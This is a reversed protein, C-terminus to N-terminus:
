SMQGLAPPTGIAASAVGADRRGMFLRTYPAGPWTSPQAGQWDNAAARQTGRREDVRGPWRVSTEAVTLAQDAALTRREYTAHRRRTSATKLAADRSGAAVSFSFLFRMMPASMNTRGAAAGILSLAADTDM